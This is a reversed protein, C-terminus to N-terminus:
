KLDGLELDLAKASYKMPSCNNEKYKSISGLFRLLYLYYLAQIYFSAM